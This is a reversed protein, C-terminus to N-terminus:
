GNGGVRAITIEFYYSSTPVIPHDARVLIHAVLDEAKCSDSADILVLDYSLLSPGPGHAKGTNITLGDDSISITSKGDVKILKSPPVAILEGLVPLSSDVDLLAKAADRSENAVAHLYPTWGHDDAINIDAGHQILFRAIKADDVIAAAILPSTLRGGQLNIDAKHEVLLQVLEMDGAYAAEQLPNGYAGDQLDANAGHELLLKTMQVDRQKVARQLATGHGKNRDCGCTTGHDTNIDIGQELLIKVQAIDSTKAADPLDTAKPTPDRTVPPPPTFDTEALVKQLYPDDPVRRKLTRLLSPYEKKPDGWSYGLRIKEVRVAEDVIKNPVENGGRHSLLVDLANGNWDHSSAILIQNSIEINENHKLFLAVMKDPSNSRRLATLIIEETIFAPDCRELLYETMGLDHGQSYAAKELIKEDVKLDKHTDFLLKVAGERNLEVAKEVVNPPIPVNPNMKLLIGLKEGTTEMRITTDLIAATVPADPDHEFLVRLNESNWAVIASSVMSENVRISPNRAFYRKSIRGKDSSNGAAATLMGATISLKEKKSFLYELMQDGNRNAAVGKFFTAPLHLDPNDDLLLRLARVGSKELSAAALLVKRNVAPRYYEPKRDFLYPLIRPAKRTIKPLDRAPFIDEPETSTSEVLYEALWPIEYNIAIEARSRFFDRAGGWSSGGSSQDTWLYVNNMAPDIIRDLYPELDKVMDMSIVHKYWHHSAYTLFPDSKELDYRVGKSKTPLPLDRFDDLALYTICAKAVSFGLGKADWFPSGHLRRDRVLEGEIKENRISVKHSDIKIIPSLADDLSDETLNPRHENLQTLTSCGPKNLLAVATELARIPLPEKAVAVWGLIFAKQKDKVCEDIALRLLDPDHDDPEIRPVEPAPVPPDGSLSYVTGLPM